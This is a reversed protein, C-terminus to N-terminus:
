ADPPALAVMAQYVAAAILEAKRFGALGNGFLDDARSLITDRGAAIMADSPYSSTALESAHQPKPLAGM